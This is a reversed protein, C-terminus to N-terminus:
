TALSLRYRLEQRKRDDGRPDARQDLAWGSEEYFRRARGNGAFVWLVAAAFERDAWARRTAAMLAQGTGQGWRGPRVYLAHLQADRLDADEAPGFSSFGAVEGGSEAVLLRLDGTLSLSIRDQWRATAKEVDLDRLEEPPLIHAYATRWGSVQIEAIEHADYLSPERVLV